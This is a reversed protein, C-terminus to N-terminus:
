NLSHSILEKFDSEQIMRIQQGGEILQEAKLHKTSKAKGSLMNLDQDGVVLLTTKKTVSTGDSCGISAALGAAERRSIDLSGTFVIVEGYLEGEPNGDRKIASGTSM